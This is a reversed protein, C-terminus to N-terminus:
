NITTCSLIKDCWVDNFEEINRCKCQRFQSGDVIYISGLVVNSLDSFSGIEVNAIIALAVHM